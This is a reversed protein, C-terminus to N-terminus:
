NDGSQRHSRVGRGGERCPFPSFFRVGRKGILLDPPRPLPRSTFCARLSFTTDYQSGTAILKSETACAPPWGFMVEFDEPIEGLYEIAIAKPKPKLESVKRRIEGEDPSHYLVEGEVIEYNEFDFQTVEVLVWEGDFQTKIQEWKM